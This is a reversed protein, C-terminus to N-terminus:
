YTGLRSQIRERAKSVYGMKIGEVVGDYPLYESDKLAADQQIFDLQELARALASTVRESEEEAGTELSKEAYYIISLAIYKSYGEQEAIADYCKWIMPYFAPAQDGAFNIGPLFYELAKQFDGTNGYSRGLNYYAVYFENNVALLKELYDRQKAFDGKKAYVVSLSNYAGEYGPYTTIAKKLHDIAEEDMGVSHYANGIGHYLAARDWNDEPLLELSETFKQKASEHRGAQLEIDGEQYKAKVTELDYAWTSTPAYWVYVSILVAIISRWGVAKLTVM